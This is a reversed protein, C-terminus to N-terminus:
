KQPRAGSGKKIRIEKDALSYKFLNYLARNSSYAMLDGVIEGLEKNTFGYKKIVSDDPESQWVKEVRETAEALLEGDNASLKNRLKKIEEDSYQQVPDKGLDNNVQPINIPEIENFEVPSCFLDPYAEEIKVVDSIRVIVKKMDYDEFDEYDTDLFANICTVVNEYTIPFLNDTEDQGVHFIRGQPEKFSAEVSYMELFHCALYVITSKDYRPWRNCVQSLSIMGESYFEIANIKKGDKLRYLVSDNRIRM